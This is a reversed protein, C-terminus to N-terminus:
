RKRRNTTTKYYVKRDRVEVGVKNRAAPTQLQPGVPVLVGFFLGPRQPLRRHWGTNMAAPRGTGCNEHVMLVPHYGERNMRKKVGIRWRCGHSSAGSSASSPPPKEQQARDSTNGTVKDPSGMWM